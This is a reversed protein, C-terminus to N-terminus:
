VSFHELYSDSQSAMQLGSQICVGFSKSGFKFFSILFQIFHIITIIYRFFSNFYFSTSDELESSPLLMLSTLQEGLENM